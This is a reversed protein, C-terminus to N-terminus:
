RAAFFNETNEIRETRYVASEVQANMCCVSDGNGYDSLRWGLVSYLFNQLKLISASYLLTMVGSLGFFFGDLLVVM